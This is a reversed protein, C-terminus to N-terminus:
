TGRRDLERLVLEYWHYYEMILPRGRHGAKKELTVFSSSLQNWRKRIGQLDKQETLTRFAIVEPHESGIYNFYDDEYRFALQELEHQTKQRLERAFKIKLPLLLVAGLVLIGIIGCTVAILVEM